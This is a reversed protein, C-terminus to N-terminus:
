RCPVINVYRNKRKNEPMVAVATSLTIEAAKKGLEDFEGKVKEVNQRIGDYYEPFYEVSVPRSSDDPIKTEPFDQKSFMPFDRSRRTVLVMAFLALTLATGFLLGFLWANFM